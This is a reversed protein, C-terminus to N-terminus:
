IFLIPSVLEVSFWIFTHSTFWVSTMNVNRTCTRLLLTGEIGTCAKSTVHKDGRHAYVGAVTAEAVTAEEINYCITQQVKHILLLGVEDMADQTTYVM